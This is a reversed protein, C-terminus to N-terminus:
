YGHPNDDGPKHADGHCPSCDPADSAAEEKPAEEKADAKADAAPAAEEKEAAPEAEKEDAPAAEEKEPAASAGGLYNVADKMALRGSSVAWGSQSGPAFKVDYSDGYLGGADCGGAYLGLIVQGDEDLVRMFEDIKIGGCTCYFGDAVELLWYPGEAVPKLYMARKGFDEDITVDEPDAGEAAACLENYRDVTTQVAAADLGVEECLAALDDGIHCGESGELVERAEALPVGPTGFSFCQGYPGEEEWAKMDAETFLVYTKKQNRVAIGGGAFDDIWLDEKVFREGDQNLWLVPQVGASYADTQWTADVAGLCVPGCWMVTGLGEAMAAGVAKAMKIGDGDRLPMGLAQINENKTESVGYLFETNNAYGGSGLMVVPAEIMVVTGDEKEALVGAVKDGDMVIQRAFTNFLTEIGLNECEVGFSQMFNSGPTPADGKEYVHWVKPGAGIAIVDGFKMGHGELWEITEAQESFYTEYLKHNPIWHHYNLCTNMANKVGYHQDPWYAGAFSVGEAPTYKTDLGTMGETGLFSGGYANFREIIVPKLGLDVAQVAAACGTGGGGVIAVDAQITETPDGVEKLDWISAAAEEAAVAQPAQVSGLAAASALGAGLIGAGAFFSRRSITNSM